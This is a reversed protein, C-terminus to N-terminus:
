RETIGRPLTRREGDVCSDYYAGPSLISVRASPRAWSNLYRSNHPPPNLVTRPAARSTTELVRMFEGYTVHPSVCLLVLLDPTTRQEFALVYPFLEATTYQVQPSAGRRISVSEPTVIHVFFDNARFLAAHLDFDHFEAEITVGYSDRAVPEKAPVSCAAASLAASTCVVCLASRAVTMPPKVNPIPRRAVM